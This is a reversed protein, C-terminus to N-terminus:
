GRTISLNGIRRLLSIHRSACHDWEFRTANKRGRRVLDDRLAEDDLVIACTRAWDEPTNGCYLAGDAATEMVAVARSAVIPCDLQMAEVLPIGFGEFLSPFAMLRAERYLRILVRSSVRGPFHVRDSLDLRNTLHRLADGRRSLLGSLVLHESRGRRTLIAMARLLIEHNKHPWDAAPYFIFPHRGPPLDARHPEEVTEDLEDELFGGEGIVHIGRDDTGLRDQLCAATFQTPVIVADAMAVSEPIRERRWALEDPAFYEPHYEHLLDPVHIVVPVPLPRPFFFFLPFYVVDLSAQDFLNLNWAAYGDGYHSEPMEVICEVRADETLTRCWPESALEARLFLILRDEGLRPLVERLLRRIYIGQGGIRGPRLSLIQVGIRM